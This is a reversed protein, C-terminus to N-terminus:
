TIRRLQEDVEVLRNFINLLVYYNAREWENRGVAREAADLNLQENVSITM